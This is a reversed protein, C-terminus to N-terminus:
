TPLRSLATGDRRTRRVTTDMQASKSFRTMPRRRANCFKFPAFFYFTAKTLVGADPAPHFANLYCPILDRMKRNAFWATLTIHYASALRSAM